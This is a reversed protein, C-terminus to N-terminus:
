RPTIRTSRRAGWRLPPTSPPWPTSRRPARPAGAAVATASRAAVRRPHRALVLVGRCPRAVTRRVPAKPWSPPSAPRWGSRRPRLWPRHPHEQDRRQRHVRRVGGPGAGAHPGVGPAADGRREHILGIGPVEADHHVVLEGDVSRRVDLEVGDAGLRLAASFADLSNERWPGTGGRHALVAVPDPAHRLPWPMPACWLCSGGGREVRIPSSPPWCSSVLLSQSLSSVDGVRRPSRMPLAAASAVLVSGM